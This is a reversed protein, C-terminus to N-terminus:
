SLRNFHRDTSIALGVLACSIGLDKLLAQGVENVEVHSVEHPAGRLNSSCRYGTKGGSGLVFIKKM